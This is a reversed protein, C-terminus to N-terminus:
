HRLNERAYIKPSKANKWCIRSINRSNIPWGRFNRGAFNKFRKCFKWIPMFFLSLQCSFQKMRSFAKGRFTNIEEIAMRSCRHGRFNICVFNLGNLYHNIILKYESMKCYEIISRENSEMCVGFHFMLTKIAIGYCGGNQNMIKWDNM